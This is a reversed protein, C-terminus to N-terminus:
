LPCESRVVVRGGRGAEDLREAEHGATHGGPRHAVTGGVGGLVGLHPEGRHSREAVTGAVGGRGVEHPGEGLGIIGQSSYGAQSSDVEAQGGHRRAVASGTAAERDGLQEQM